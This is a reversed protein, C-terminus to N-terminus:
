KAKKGNTKFTSCVEDLGEVMRKNLMEFADASSKSVMDGLDRMNTVAQEYAHKTLDAQKFVIDQPTDGVFLDRSATSMDEFSSRIMEAQRTALAQASEVALQNIAAFTEFTKRQSAAIADVDYAPMKFNAMLKTVDMNYFPNAANAM